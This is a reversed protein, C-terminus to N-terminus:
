MNVQSARADTSLRIISAYWGVVLPGTHNNSGIKRAVTMISEQKIKLM